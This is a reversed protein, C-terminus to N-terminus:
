KMIHFNKNEVKLQIEGAFRPITRIHIFKTFWFRQLSFNEQLIHVSSIMMSIKAPSGEFRVVAFDDGNVWIKGQRLKEEKRKPTLNLVYCKYVGLQEEGALSFEYDDTPYTEKQQKWKEISEQLSTELGKILIAQGSSEIMSAKWKDPAEFSIEFRAEAKTTGMSIARHQEFRFAKIQAAQHRERAQMRRAVEEVNMSTRTSKSQGLVALPILLFLVQPRIMM